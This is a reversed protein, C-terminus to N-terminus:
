EVCECGNDSDGGIPINSITNAVVDGISVSAPELGANGPRHLANSTLMLRDALSVSFYRARTAAAIAGSVARGGITGASGGFLGALGAKSVSKCSGTIRNQAATVGAGVAAGGVSNAAIARGIGLGKTLNGLGGGAAGIVTAAVFDGWDFTGDGHYVQTYANLGGGILAGVVCWPCLGTRDTFRLPNGGVYGYTNLGGVLGIPDSELYRGTSPDYTRFYNYVM